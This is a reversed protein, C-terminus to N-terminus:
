ARKDAWTALCTACIGYASSIVATKLCKPCPRRKDRLVPLATSSIEAVADPATEVHVRYDFAESTLRYVSKAKTKSLKEIYGHRELQNLWRSITTRSCNFLVALGRTTVEVHNSKERTKYTKAAIIGFLVKADSSVSFDLGLAVPLKGFWGPYQGVRSTVSKAWDTGSQTHCHKM